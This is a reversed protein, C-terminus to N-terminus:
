FRDHPLTCSLGSWSDGDGAIFLRQLRGLATSFPADLSVAIARPNDMCCQSKVVLALDELAPPFDSFDVAPPIPLGGRGAIRFKM